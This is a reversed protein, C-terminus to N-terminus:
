YLCLLIGETFVFINYMATGFVKLIATWVTVPSCNTMSSREGKKYLPKVVAYKLHDPFIGVCIYKNCDYYVSRGIQLGCLKIIKSSVEDQGSLNKSKLSSIIGIVEM